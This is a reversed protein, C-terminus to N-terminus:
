NLVCSFALNATGSFSSPGNRGITIQLNEVRPLFRLRRVRNNIFVNARGNNGFQSCYRKTVSRIERDIQSIVRDTSRATSINVSIETAGYSAYPDFVTVNDNDDDDDDHDHALAPFASLHMLIVALFALAGAKWFAPKGKFANRTM